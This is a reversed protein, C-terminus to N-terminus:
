LYFKDMVKEGAKGLSGARVNMDLNQVAAGTVM